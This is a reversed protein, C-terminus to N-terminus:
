ISIKIHQFKGEWLYQIVTDDTLQSNHDGFETLGLLQLSGGLQLLLWLLLLRTLDQKLNTEHQCSTQLLFHQRSRLKWVDLVSIFSYFIYFYKFRKYLNKPEEWGLLFARCYMHVHDSHVPLLPFHYSITWLGYRQYCQHWCGLLCYFSLHYLM